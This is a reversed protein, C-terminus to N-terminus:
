NSESHRGTEPMSNKCGPDRELPVTSVAGPLGMLLVLEHASTVGTGTSGRNLTALALGECCIGGLGTSLPSPCRYCGM